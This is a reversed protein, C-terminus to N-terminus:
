VMCDVSGDDCLAKRVAPTGSSEESRQRGALVLPGPRRSPLYEIMLNREGQLWECIGPHRGLGFMQSLAAAARRGGAAFDEATNKSRPYLCSQRCGHEQGRASNHKYDASEQAAPRPPSTQLSFGLFAFNKRRWVKTTAHPMGAPKSSSGRDSAVPIPRVCGADPDVQPLEGPRPVATADAPVAQLPSQRTANRAKRCSRNSSRYECSEARSACSARCARLVETAASLASLDVGSREAESRQLADFIHSM